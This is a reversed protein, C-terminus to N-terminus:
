ASIMFNGRWTFEIRIGSGFKLMGWWSFGIGKRALGCHWDREGSKSLRSCRGLGDLSIVADM